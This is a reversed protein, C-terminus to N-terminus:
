NVQIAGIGAQWLMKNYTPVSTNVIQGARAKLGAWQSDLEEKRARSGQNVRPIESSTANILFIYEATFKNPFNEVDDYAQSKRQVMDEDWGILEELLKQGSVKLPGEDMGRLLNRVQGQVKYLRNVMRHMSNLEEEMASMFQDYDAYEAPTVEYGPTSIINGETTASTDGTRMTISYTGPPAKHGQFGAEMYVGPIGEMIPYNLDWVFRNLGKAGPLVPKPPPGGGNHEQYTTDKESSFTRILKGDSNRIEMMM